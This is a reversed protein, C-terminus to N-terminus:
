KGGLLAAFSTRAFQLRGASIARAIADAKESQVGSRRAKFLRNVLSLDQHRFATLVAERLMSQINQLDRDGFERSPEIQTGEGWDNWTAIQIIPANSNLAKKLTEKLTRGDNDALRPYGESVGAQKYIDDFRPFAVPIAKPWQNAQVLFRDVQQMGAKPSPWGFGGIAGKRRIDQSFYAVPSALQSLCQSWEDNKLGAHGFSLLVPKGNLRVYSGSKFWYKCLWNIEDVAHSVRDAASIRKGDVLARITQDEYCIVFKMKLRECQELLRTTNRHLIAYDRYDTLGYWDVIVGDIGALKMLLLHYELVDPDGSDYPGILPQFKSAIERKGDVQKEPDFHDMTWHWGWHDSFPKATYWPMYHALILPRAVKEASSQFDEGAQENEKAALHERFWEIALQQAEDRKENYIGYHKIGKVTIIKKVGTARDFAAIAHDRNDFLEENEAIIFLKACNECRDIDEIPAYRMLKEWVPQGTMGGFKAFPEPYGIEGRTRATGRSFTVKRFEQNEIAWRADMSAVQSVFAKVRPDRAAVYVVHGGSFSSGWIGIRSADCLEEAQVWHLANQIDTTQDIPDVVGRVEAVEAVLKGKQNTPKSKAVLRADSHGWGRYDFTVVLFGERAFAVADPRLGAVTGGWGHSMVITPLKGQANRPSFVEASMRTGESIISDTRFNIDAPANFQESTQASTLSGLGVVAIAITLLQTMLKGHQLKM